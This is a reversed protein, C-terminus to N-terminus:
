NGWTPDIPCGVCDYASCSRQAPPAHLRGRAGPLSNTPNAEAAFRCLWFWGPVGRLIQNREGCQLFRSKSELVGSCIWEPSQLKENLCAAFRAPALSPFHVLSRAASPSGAQEAEGKTAGLGIAPSPATPNPAAPAPSTRSLSSQSSPARPVVKHVELLM